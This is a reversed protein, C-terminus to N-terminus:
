RIESELKDYNVQVKEWNTMAEELSKNLEAHEFYQDQANLDSSFEPKAMKEELHIIEKEIEDIKREWRQVANKLKKLEKEKEKNEKYSLKNSASKEKDVINNTQTKKRSNENGAEFARFSDVKHKSLFEEIPGIHEKIKGDAFEFTRSTLGQLFDRDHSVLILTGDFNLLAEKLVEKSAIDLHNTPEDLILLNIPNLLLKALALRSKEGGSLVKVKKDIDEAGFLFTGLLGRIRSVNRWEETAINDITDFVTLEHDLTNEQVQAYYGIEVNHGVNLTGQHQLKETILKIMTSKGQGNQGVFAVRDGRMIDFEIDNFVCKDDYYKSLERAHLVVDGSRPAPPFYFKIQSNDLEDLEIREIKDLQKQKSQAAKAKTAKAKFREIFKEQQEIYKQQNRMTAIQQEYREERLTMYHSYAVKYDYIKGFVIEITRNTVNDLFMRDHSIMIISGPYNIFFDELWMIAEIDLHNTPEDLLLLSPKQLLLKALEIRMQWGGSFESVPKKFESEKFGLGKLIKEVQSESKGDDLIHLREHKDSLDLILKQYAESEYDTREALDINIQEIDKNLQIIENFVTMTEDFVTKTSDISIEQPLYGISQGDPIVIHGVDPKQIGFIIKLLTSKGVGNKGVLGIRDKANILFTIDKFLDNGSFSVSINQVSIM